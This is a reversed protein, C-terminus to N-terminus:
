ASRAHERRDRAAPRDDRRDAPKSVDTSCDQCTFGYRGQEGDDAIELSIAEANM